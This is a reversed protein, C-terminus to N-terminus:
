RNIILIVALYWTTSIKFYRFFWLMGIGFKAPGNPGDKQFRHDIFLSTMYKNIQIDSFLNSSMPLYSFKWYSIHNSFRKFVNIGTLGCFSKFDFVFLCKDIM